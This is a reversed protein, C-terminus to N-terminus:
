ISYCYQEVTVTVTTSTSNRTIGFTITDGISLDYLYLLEYVANANSISTLSQDDFNTNDVYDISVSTIIDSTELIGYGTTTSNSEDVASIYVVQKRTYSGFGGTTYYGDSITFGFLYEGELYGASWVKYTKDYGKNTNSISDIIVKVQNSPIAFGLGEIGSSSYKANVIGILAGSSNFLAGGSNGSNIAVDTQILEMTLYDDVAVERNVYSVVGTSVSGQLTGLPNGICIVTQGLKLDDSDSYFSAYTLDIAEISLVAIDGKYSGGVYSAEYETENDSLIVTISTADEVVHFCTVVYSLGNDEDESFLVGSGASTFSSGSSVGSCEIAVVSDYVNSVTNVVKDEYSENITTTNEVFDSYTIDGIEDYTYSISEKETSNSDDDSNNKDGANSINSNNPETVDPDISITEDSCSTVGIVMFLLISLFVIKKKM